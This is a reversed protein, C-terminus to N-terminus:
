TTNMDTHVSEYKKRAEAMKQIYENYKDRSLSGNNRFSSNNANDFGYLAKMAKRRDKGPIGNDKMYADTVPNFDEVFKDIMNALTIKEDPILKGTNVAEYREPISEEKVPINTHSEEREVPIPAEISQNMDTIDTHILTSQVPEPTKNVKEETSIEKKLEELIDRKLSEIDVTPPTSLNTDTVDTHIPEGSLWKELLEVIVGSITRKEAKAKEIVNKELVPSATFTIRKFKDKPDKKAVM